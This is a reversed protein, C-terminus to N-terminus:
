AHYRFSDDHRRPVPTLRWPRHHKRAFHLLTALIHRETQICRVHTSLYIRNSRDGRRGIDGSLYIRGMNNGIGITPTAINCASWLVGDVRYQEDEYCYYNYPLVGCPDAVNFCLQSRGTLGVSVSFRKSRADM